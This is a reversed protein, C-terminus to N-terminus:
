AIDNDAGLSKADFEVTAKLNLGRINLEKEVDSKPVRAILAFSKAVGNLTPRSKQLSGTRRANNKRDQIDCTRLLFEAITHVDGHWLVSIERLKSLQVIEQKPMLIDRTARRMVNHEGESQQGSSSVNGFVFGGSNSYYM